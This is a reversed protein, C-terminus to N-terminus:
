KLYSEDPVCIGQRDYHAECGLRTALVDAASSSEVWIEGLWQGNKWLSYCLLKISM